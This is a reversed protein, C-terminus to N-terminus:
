PSIPTTIPEFLPSTEIDPIFLPDVIAKFAPYNTAVILLEGGMSQLARKVGLRLKPHHTGVYTVTMALGWLTGPLQQVNSDLLAENIHRRTLASIRKKSIYYDIIHSTTEPTLFISKASEITTSFEKISKIAETLKKEFAAIGGSMHVVRSNIDLTPIDQFEKSIEFTLQNSCQLIMGGGRLHLSSQGNLTGADIGLTYLGLGNKILTINAKGGHRTNSPQVQIETDPPLLSQITPLINEIKTQKYKTSVPAYLVNKGNEQYIRFVIPKDTCISAIEADQDVTPLDWLFKLGNRYKTPNAEYFVKGVKTKSPILIEHINSDEDRILLNGSHGGEEITLAEISATIDTIEQM